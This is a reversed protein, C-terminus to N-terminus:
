NTRLTFLLFVLVAASLAAVIPELYITWQSDQVIKPQLFGYPTKESDEYIKQGVSDTAAYHIEFPVIDEQKLWGALWLDIRRKYGGGFGMMNSAQEDFVPSVDFREIFLSTKASDAKIQLSRDRAVRYFVSKLFISKEATVNGTIFGIEQNSVSSANLLSDFIFYVRNEVFDQNTSQIQGFGNRVFLCITGWIATRLILASFNSM